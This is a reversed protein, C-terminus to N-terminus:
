TATTTRQRRYIEVIHETDQLRESALNVATRGDDTWQLNGREVLERIDSDSSGHVWKKILTFVRVSKLGYSKRLLKDLIAAAHDSVPLSAEIKPPPSKAQRGSQVPLGM